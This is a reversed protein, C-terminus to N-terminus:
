FEMRETEVMKITPISFVGKYDMIIGEGSAGNPLSVRIKSGVRGDELAMAPVADTMFLNQAGQRVNRQVFAFITDGKRVGRLAPQAFGAIIAAGISLAILKWPETFLSQEGLGLAKNLMSSLGYAVLSLAILVMATKSALGLNM